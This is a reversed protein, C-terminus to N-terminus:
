KATSTLRREKSDAKRCAGLSINEKKKNELVDALGADVAEFAFGDAVFEGGGGGFGVAGGGGGGADGDGAGDVGDKGAQGGGLGDGEQM